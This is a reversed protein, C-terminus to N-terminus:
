QIRASALYLVSLCTANGRGVCEIPSIAATLDYHAAAGELFGQTITCLCRGSHCRVRLGGDPQLNVEFDPRSEDTFLIALGSQLLAAMRAAPPYAHGFQIFIDPYREALTSLSESGIWRLMQQAPVDLMHSAVEVLSELEIEDYDGLAAFNGRRGAAALTANWAGAGHMRVVVDELVNFVLGKM